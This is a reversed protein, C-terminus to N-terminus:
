LHSQFRSFGSIPETFTADYRRLLERLEKSPTGFVLFKERHVLSAFAKAFNVQFAQLHSIAAKSNVYREYVFVRSGDESMFREYAIVGDELATLDIMAETLSCFEDFSDPKVILEVQWSIEQNM